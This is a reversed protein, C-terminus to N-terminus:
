EEDEVPDSLRDMHAKQFAVLDRDHDSAAVPVHLNAETEVHRMLRDAQRVLAWLASLEEVSHIPSGLLIADVCERLDPLTNQFRCYSMNSM